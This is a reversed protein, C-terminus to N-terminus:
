FFLRSYYQRCFKDRFNPFLTIERLNNKGLTVSKQSSCTKKKRLLTKHMLPPDLPRVPTVPLCIGGCSMIGM